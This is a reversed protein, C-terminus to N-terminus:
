ERSPNLPHPSTTGEESQRTQCTKLKKQDLDDIVDEHITINASQIGLISCSLTDGETFFGVTGLLGYEKSGCRNIRSKCRLNTKYEEGNGISGVWGKNYRQISAQLAPYLENYHLLNTTEAGVCNPDSMTVALTDNETTPSDLLYIPKPPLYHARKRTFVYMM